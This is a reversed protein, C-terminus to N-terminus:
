LKPQTGGDCGPAMQRRTGLAQSGACHQWFCSILGLAAFSSNRASLATASDDELFDPFGCATRLLVTTFPLLFERSAALACRRSRRHWPSPRLTPLFCAFAVFAFPSLSPPEAAKQPGSRLPKAAVRRSPGPPRSWTEPPWVEPLLQFRVKAKFLESGFRPRVAVLFCISTEM